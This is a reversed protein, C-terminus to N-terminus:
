EPADKTKKSDTKSDTKPTATETKTSTSENASAEEQTSKTKPKGKDRFDTVYWGGGKLQFGVASILKKLEPQHCQPCDVAPPDSIKQFKECRTGCAQCEYEYIPM